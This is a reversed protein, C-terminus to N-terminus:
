TGAGQSLRPRPTLLRMVMETKVDEEELETAKWQVLLKPRGVDEVLEDEDSLESANPSVGQSPAVNARLGGGKEPSHSSRGGRDGSRLGDCAKDTLTIEQRVM